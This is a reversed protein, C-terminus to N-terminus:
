SRARMASADLVVAARGEILGRGAHSLSFHYLIHNQDGSLREARIELAGPRDDLRAVRLSVGRLAPAFPKRLVIRDIKSEGREIPTELPIVVTDM